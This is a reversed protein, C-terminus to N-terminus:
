CRQRDREGMITANNKFSQMFTVQRIFDKGPLQLVSASVDASHQIHYDSFGQSMIRFPCFLEETTDFRHHVCILQQCRRLWL